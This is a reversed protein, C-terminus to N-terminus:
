FKDFWIEMFCSLGKWYSNKFLYNQKLKLKWDVVTVVTKRIRNNKDCARNSSTNNVTLVCM